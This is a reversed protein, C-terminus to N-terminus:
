GTFEADAVHESDAAGYSVYRIGDQAGPAGFDGDARSLILNTM